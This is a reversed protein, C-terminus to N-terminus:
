RDAEVPWYNLSWYIPPINAIEEGRLLYKIAPILRFSPTSIKVRYPKDGGESRVYYMMEGRAAETRAVAEGAPVRINIPHQKVKVPGDPMMEAAQSIIKCSERMEKFGVIARDYCDGREGVPIEFKLQSYVDYPNNIRNDFKIGSARLTTGVVGLKIADERKLVGVNRTRSIFLENNFFLDWYDDLRKDFCECVYTIYKRLQEADGPLDNGMVMRYYRNFEKLLPQPVKSPMDNRVGGPEFYSHTIRQGGILSTLDVLYERDGFCWLFMTSNGLFVGYLAFWYLHSAIRQLEAMIVRLYKAREPPEIGMLKEVALVYPYQIGASDLIVPRELHPINTIWTKYEALKEEGRHVFGPDPEAELVTDGLVTIILRFHGTGPHQPGYSMKLAGEGVDYVEIKRIEKRETVTM